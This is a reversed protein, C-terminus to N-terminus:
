AKCVSCGRLVRFGEGVGWLGSGEVSELGLVKDLWARLTAFLSLYTPTM